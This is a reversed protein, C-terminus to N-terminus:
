MAELEDGFYRKKIPKENADALYFYYCEEKFHWCVDTIFAKEEKEVVRVEDGWEFEPAPRELLGESPVVDRQGRYEVLASQGDNSVIKVTAGRHCADSVLANACIDIPDNSFWGWRQQDSM